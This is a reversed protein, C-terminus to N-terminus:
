RGLAHYYAELALPQQGLSLYIEGLLFWLQPKLASHTTPSQALAQLEPIPSPGQQTKAYDTAKLLLARSSEDLPAQGLLLGAQSKARNRISQFEDSDEEEAEPEAAM